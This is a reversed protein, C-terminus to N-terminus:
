PSNKQRINLICHSAFSSQSCSNTEARPTPKEEGATLQGRPAPSCCSPAWSWSTCRPRHADRKRQECKPRTSLFSLHRLKCQESHLAFVQSCLLQLSAARPFTCPLTM